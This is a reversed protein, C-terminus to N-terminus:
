LNYFARKKSTQANKQLKAGSQFFNNFDRRWNISIEEVKNYILFLINERKRM